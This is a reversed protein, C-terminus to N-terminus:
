KVGFQGELAAYLAHAEDNLLTFSYCAGPELIDDFVLHFFEGHRLVSVAEGEALVVYNSEPDDALSRVLSARDHLAWFQNARKNM